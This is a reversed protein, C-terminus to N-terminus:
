FDGWIALQPSITRSTNHGAVPLTAGIIAGLDGTFNYELAPGVNYSESWGTHGNVRTHTNSNYGSIRTSSAWNQFFDCAVLLERTIGFEMSFGNNGYPGPHANGRFGQLGMGAVDGTYSNINKLHASTVPTRGMAWVRLRMQHRFFPRVMQFIAGYRLTWAGSGVGQSTDTLNSYNGSPAQFGLDLSLSPSYDKTLRYEFDIPLDDFEVGSGRGGKRNPSSYSYGPQMQISLHNTIAGKMFEVNSIGKSHTGPVISGKGNYSGAPLSGILYPESGFMGKPFAPSPSTLGGTYWQEPLPKKSKLFDLNLDPIIQKAQAKNAGAFLITLCVALIHGRGSRPRVLPKKM